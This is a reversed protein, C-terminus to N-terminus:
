RPSTNPCPPEGNGSWPRSLDNLVVWMSAACLIIGILTAAVPMRLGPPQHNLLSAVIFILGTATVVLGAVLGVLALPTLQCLQIAM